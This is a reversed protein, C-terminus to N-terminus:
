LIEEHLYCYVADASVVVAVTLTLVVLSRTNILQQRHSDTM